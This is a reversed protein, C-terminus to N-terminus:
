QTDLVYRPATANAMGESGIRAVFISIILLLAYAMVFGPLWSTKWLRGNFFALLAALYMAGIAAGVALSM